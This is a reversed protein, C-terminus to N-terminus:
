QDEVKIDVIRLRDRKYAKLQEPVDMAKNGAKRGHFALAIASVIAVLLIAAAIEFPYLYHTFLLIGMAKTNSYTAPYHVPLLSAEKLHNPGIVLLMTGVLLVIIVFGFPVYRVFKKRMGALDINLMMVVFLFLTMVAGVYVFILLLSLFEAQLLMWLVATAFFGLVLFLIAHVPNRASIVMVSAAILITAFLYFVFQHIPFTM